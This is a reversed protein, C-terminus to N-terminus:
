GGDRMVKVARQEKPVGPQKIGLYKKAQATELAQFIGTGVQWYLLVHGEM